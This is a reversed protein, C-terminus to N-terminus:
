PFSKSWHKIPLINTSSAHVPNCHSQCFNSTNKTTYGFPMAHFVAFFSIYRTSM